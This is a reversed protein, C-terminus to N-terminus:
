SGLEAWRQHEHDQDDTGSGDEAPAIRELALDASAPHRRDIQRLVEPLAPEDRDLEEAAVDGEREAGMPERALDLDRRTEGVGMDQRHVVRVLGLAQEVIDHREDFALRQAVPQAALRAKRHVLRQDDGALDGVRKGIGVLEAHDVAVDLRGVHQDLGAVGHDGVEAHGAGDRGRRVVPHGAGAEDDARRDVHAGLLPGTFLEVAAGVDVRQAADRVLHEGARRREEAGRRLDDHSPVDRRREPGNAFRARLHRGGRSRGDLLREGLARGLALAVSSIM